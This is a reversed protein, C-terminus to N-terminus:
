FSKWRGLFHSNRRKYLELIKLRQFGIEDLLYVEFLYTLLRTAGTLEKGFSFAKKKKSSPHTLKNRTKVVLSVFVDVDNIVNPFFEQKTVLLEALREHLSKYNANGLAKEVWNRLEESEILPLVRDKRYQFEYESFRSGIFLLDHLSELAQVIHLFKTDGFMKETYFLSRYLDFMTRLKPFSKCWNLVHIEDLDRFGFLMGYLSVDDRHKISEIPQYYIEVEPYYPQGSTDFHANQKTYGVLKLPYTLRQVAMQQLCVMRIMRDLIEDFLVDNDVHKVVFFAEQSIRVERPIHSPGHLYSSFNVGVRFGDEIDFFIDM